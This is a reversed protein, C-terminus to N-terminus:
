TQKRFAEDLAEVLARVTELDVTAVGGGYREAHMGEMTAETREALEPSVGAVTVRRKLDHGLITATPCELCAALYETFADALDAGDDKTMSRFRDSAARIRARHPDDARPSSPATGDATRRRLLWLLGIVLGAGIAWLLGASFRAADGTEDTEGDASDELAASSRAPDVRQPKASVVLPVPETHVTRYKAAVPDFFSFPLPPIATVGARNSAVDFTITRRSADLEDILGYVDFGDLADPRPADFFALNGDGEIHLELKISQGVVVDRPRADARVSFSGIAGMFGSPRDTAPLAVISLTLAAGSVVSDQRDEPIRGNIFDDVFRTAHAYRLSPAPFKLVGARSAVYRREIGLVTFRDGREVNSLRAGRVIEDGFAFSMSAASTDSPTWTEDTSSAGALDDLGRAEVQVSLELSQRFLPIMNRESFETDVGLRLQVRIVEGVFYSERETRFEVFTQEQASTAVGHSVAALALSVFRLRRRTRSSM